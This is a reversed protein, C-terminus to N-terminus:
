LSAKFSDIFVATIHNISKFLLKKLLGKINNCFVYLRAVRNRHYTIKTDLDFLKLERFLDSLEEQTFHEPRTSDREFDEPLSATRSFISIPIQNLQHPIPSM